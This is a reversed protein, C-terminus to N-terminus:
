VKSSCIIVYLQVLGHTLGDTTRIVMGNFGCCWGYNPDSTLFTVELYYNADYPSPISTVQKWQSYCEFGSIIFIIIIYIIFKYKTKM